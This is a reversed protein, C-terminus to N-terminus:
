LYRELEKVTVTKIQGDIKIEITDSDKLKRGAVMVEDTPKHPKFDKIDNIGLKAMEQNRKYMIERGIRLVEAAERVTNAVAVINKIGKFPTFETYKLDILAIAMQDGHTLCHFIINRLAVSNHHVLGCTEFRHTDTEVCFVNEIGQYSISLKKNNCYITQHFEQILLSIASITLWYENESVKSCDSEVVEYTEAIINKSSIECKGDSIDLIKNDKIVIEDNNTYFIHKNYTIPIQYGSFNKIVWEKYEKGLKSINCLLLHTSSLVCAHINFNNRYTVKYCDSEYEEHKSVVESGDSFIDGINVDKWYKKETNIM